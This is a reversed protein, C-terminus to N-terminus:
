LSRLFTLLHDSPRYRGAPTKLPATKALAKEKMAMSAQVYVQVTDMTEHGLWLAIVSRDVGHDLLDMASSHRLVHPSVRKNKLSPCQRQAVAVYKSLLYAVGDRSLAGGRASPFL